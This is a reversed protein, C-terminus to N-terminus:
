NISESWEEGDVEIKPQQRWRRENYKLSTKEIKRWIVKGQMRQDSEEERDM